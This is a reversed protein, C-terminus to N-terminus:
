TKPEKLEVGHEAAYAVACEIMEAMQEKTMRSSRYGVSVVGQGDLAPEWRVQHGTASMFLCKWTEPPYNRGEPKARSIESLTAWLKANQENSRRPATIKLVSGVPACDVIRHASERNGRLIITQSM